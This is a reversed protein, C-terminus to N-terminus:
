NVREATRNPLDLRYVGDLGDTNCVWGLSVTFARDSEWELLDVVYVSGAEPLGAFDLQYYSYTRQLQDDLQLVWLTRDVFCADAYGTGGIAAVYKGDPSILPDHLNDTASAIQHSEGTTVNVGCAKRLAWHGQM